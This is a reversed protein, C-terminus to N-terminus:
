GKNNQSHQYKVKEKGTLRLKARIKECVDQASDSSSESTRAFSITSLCGCIVTAGLLISMSIIITRKM